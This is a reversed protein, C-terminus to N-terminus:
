LLCHLSLVETILNKAAQSSDTALPLRSDHWVAFHALAGFFPQQIFGGDGFVEESRLRDQVKLEELGVAGHCNLLMSSIASSLYSTTGMLSTMDAACGARTNFTGACDSVALSIFCASWFVGALGYSASAACAQQSADSFEEPPPRCASAAANFAMLGQGLQFLGQGSDVVCVAVGVSASIDYDEVPPSDQLSRNVFHRFPADAVSLVDDASLALLGQLDPVKQRRRLSYTLCAALATAAALSACGWASRGKPREVSRCPTALPESEDSM